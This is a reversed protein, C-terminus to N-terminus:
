RGPAEIRRRGFLRADVSWAGPGIMALAAGLTALMIHTLPNAAFFFTIWVELVAILAGVVPTWLGALLLIGASAGIMRLVTSTVPIADNLHVTASYFLIAATLLRLLLLGRGPWGDAFTSFLRQM